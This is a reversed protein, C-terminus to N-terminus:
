VEISAGEVLHKRYEAPLSIMGFDEKLLRNKFDDVKVKQRILNIYIGAKEIKNVLIMGVLYGDKLVLKRYSDNTVETLLEFDGLPPNVLGASILTVEGVSVTNVPLSGPYSVRSGTMNEGAVKGQKVAEPWIAVVNREGTILNKTEAIDGAAFIDPRQSQQFEDVIIGRNIEIGSERLWDVNPRVGIAIVALDSLLYEGSKLIADTLKGGQGQFEIVTDEKIVEVGAHELASELYYAGKEDLMNQLLRNALEVLTVKVGLEIFAEATKLGIFGGGLITVREVRHHKMFESVQQMDRPTTFTFVGELEKGPLPPAIPLGGTAILAKEFVFSEGSSLILRNNEKELTKAEGGYILDLNLNEIWEPRYRIDNVKNGLYYTILPPSYIGDEKTIAVIKGKRDRERITRACWWGAVSFGVLLYRTEIDNM